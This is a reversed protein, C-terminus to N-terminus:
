RQVDGEAGFVLRLGQGPHLAREVADGLLEMPFVV